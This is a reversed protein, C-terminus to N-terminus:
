LSDPASGTKPFFRRFPIILGILALALLPLFVMGSWSDLAYLLFFVPYYWFAFWAWKEGRRFATAAILITFVGTGLANYGLRHWHGSFYPFHEGKMFWDWHGPDTHPLLMAYAAYVTILGGFGAFILWSRGTDAASYTSNKNM